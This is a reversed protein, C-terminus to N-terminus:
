DQLETLLKRVVLSTEIAPNIISVGDGIANKIEKYLYPYHTCGLVLTDFGAFGKLAESVVKQTEEDHIGTEALPAFDPTALEMVELSPNIKKIENAYAHNKITLPTAIVGIVGTKTEAAAAAAGPKIVGVVPIDLEKELTELACSTATNCAIVIAKCGSKIYMDAIERSYGIIEEKSKEGYPFHSCDAFYMLNDDPLVKRLETYVTLGGIGSDFVGIPSKM